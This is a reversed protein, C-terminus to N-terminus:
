NFVIKRIKHDESQVIYLNGKQDSSIAFPHDFAAATGTGDKTEKSSGAIKIVKGEPSVFKISNSFFDCVFLNDNNDVTIGRLESFTTYDDKAGALTSVIGAPTIKRVKQSDAVFINDASDAAIGNLYTFEANQAEGDNYGNGGKGAFTSVIGEPTIKRIRNSDTVYINNKSDPALGGFYEFKARSGEGDAYGYEGSGALTSVVGSPTVKRIVFNYNDAVLLNGAKDFAMPGPHCFIANTGTGDQLGECDKRGTLDVPPQFGANGVFDEVGGSTNIKEIAYNNSIYIRSDDTVALNYAFAAVPLTTVVAKFNSSKPSPVPKIENNINVTNYCGSILLVLILQFNFISFQFNNKM